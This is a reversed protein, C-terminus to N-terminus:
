GASPGNRIPICASSRVSFSPRTTRAGANWSLRAQQYITQADLDEIPATRERPAFLGGGSREGGGCAALLAVLAVVGARRLWVIGTKESGQVDDM